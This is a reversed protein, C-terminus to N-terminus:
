LRHPASLAAVLLQRIMPVDRLRASIEPHMMLQFLHQLSPYRGAAAFAMIGAMAFVDCSPGEPARYSIGLAPPTFLPHDSSVAWGFDLLVPLGDRVMINDPNIDRHKIEAHHLAELIDLCGHAFRAFAAPDALASASAALAQGHIKEIRVTSDRDTAASDLLRPFLPGSLQRLFHAERQALDATTQKLIADGLDYIRSYYEIAGHRTLCRSSLITAPDHLVPLPGSLDIDRTTKRALFLQRTPSHFGLSAVHCFHKRLAADFAAYSYPARALSPNHDLHGFSQIAPDAPAIWEIILTYRTLSALWGILTDLSGFSATCSYLWHVLAMALVVDAPEQWSDVKACVPNLQFINLQRCARRVMAIYTEDLDVATVSAAGRQLAWFGFFSSNSGLDLVTRRTFLSPQFVTALMEYRRLLNADTADITVSDATLTFNQYGHFIAADPALVIRAAPARANPQEFLATTSM